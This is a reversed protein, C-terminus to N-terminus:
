GLDEGDEAARLEVQPFGDQGPPLDRDVRHGHQPPTYIVTGGSIRTISVPLAIMPPRSIAPSLASDAAGSAGTSRIVPVQTQPPTSTLRLGRLFLRGRM